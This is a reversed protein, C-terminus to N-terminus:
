VDQPNWCALSGSFHGDSIISGVELFVADYFSRTVSSELADDGPACFGHDAGEIIVLQSEKHNTVFRMPIEIDVGEDAGGHIIFTGSPIDIELAYFENVIQQSFSKGWSSIAGAEALQQLGSSSLGSGTGLEPRVVYEHVYDLIPALLVLQAVQDQHRRVWNAAAGGSFSAAVLTTEVFQNVSTVAAGIAADIDNYLGALTLEGLPRDRDHGHCRWDFRFSAIGKGALYHALDTYFGEEERDVDIGPTLVALKGFRGGDPASLTGELETGDLSGFRITRELM